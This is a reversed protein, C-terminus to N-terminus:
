VRQLSVVKNLRYSKKCRNIEKNYIYNQKLFYTLHQNILSLGFNEYGNKIIFIFANVTSDIGRVASDFGRVTSDFGRVTSDFGRVTSDFGRVTSDFGKVASDSGGLASELGGLRSKVVENPYFSSYLTFLRFTLDIILM